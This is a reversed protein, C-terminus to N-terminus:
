PWAAPWDAAVKCMAQTVTDTAVVGWQALAACLEDSVVSDLLLHPLRTDPQACLHCDSHVLLLQNNGVELWQCPENCAPLTAPNPTLHYCRM